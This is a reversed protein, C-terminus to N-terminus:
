PWGEPVGARAVRRGNARGLRASIFDGVAMLRRLDVGTRIGMGQLLYAVDETALNGGAGEAYPCGGLGAVSGDVVRVGVSLCALINALAQGRTDHFHLALAEVPVEEAVTELKHRAKLPTGVGITDALAIEDCGLTRLRGALNAVRAPDVPGEDPCGLACSLYARTQLGAEQVAELVGAIRALSAEITCNINRQCFTESAATFVAIEPAGAALARELGTLNPVLVPYTVGPRRRLRQLVQGADALQPIREPRVFSTAEVVPLGTDALREILEVKLATELVAPEDQLGDRAAVEVLKVSDPYSM